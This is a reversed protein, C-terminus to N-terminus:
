TKIKLSTLAFLATKTAIQVRAASLKDAHLFDNVGGRPGRGTDTAERAMILGRNTNDIEFARGV